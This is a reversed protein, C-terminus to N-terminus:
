LSVVLKGNGEDQEIDYQKTEAYDIAYYDLFAKASIIAGTTKVTLNILGEEKDDNTFEFGIKKKERDYFLIVYKYDKLKYREVVGQNFGIQGRSWISVKPHFARGKKTFREFAM